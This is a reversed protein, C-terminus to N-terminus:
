GNSTEVWSATFTPIPYTPRGKRKPAHGSTVTMFNTLSFSHCFIEMQMAHTHGSLTLEIDSDPLVERRWHTPNHSLLIRFMGETGQMAKSLDAFQSFPPEGDNEVGILAISDGKHYLICHENNLMKWGM